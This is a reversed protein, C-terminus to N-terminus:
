APRDCVLGVPRDDLYGFVGPPPSEAMRDALEAKRQAPGGARWDATRLRWFMCWCGGPGGRDGLVAPLDSFREATAPACRLEGGDPLTVTMGDWRGM